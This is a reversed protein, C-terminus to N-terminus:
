PNAVLLLSGDPAHDAVWGQYGAYQVVWWCVADASRPGGNVVAVDGNAMFALTDSEAKGVYGPTERVRVGDAIAKVQVGAAFDPQCYGASASGDGADNIGRPPVPATELIRGPTATASSPAPVPTKAILIFLAGLILVLVLPACGERQKRSPKKQTKQDPEPSM